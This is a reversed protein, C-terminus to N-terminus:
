KIKSLNYYRPFLSSILNDSVLVTGIKLYESKLITSLAGKREKRKGIAKAMDYRVFALSPESTSQLCPKIGPLNQAAYMAKILSEGGM